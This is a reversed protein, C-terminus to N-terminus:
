LRITDLLSHRKELRYHLDSLSCRPRILNRCVKLSLPLGLFQLIRRLNSTLELHILRIRQIQFNSLNSECMRFLSDTENQLTVKPLCIRCIQTTLLKIDDKTNRLSDESIHCREEFYYIPNLLFYACLQVAVEMQDNTLFNM